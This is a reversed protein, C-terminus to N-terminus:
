PIAKIFVDWTHCSAGTENIRLDYLSQSGGRKKKLQDYWHTKNYTVAPGDL